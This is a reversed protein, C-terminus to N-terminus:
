CTVAELAGKTREQNHTSERIQEPTALGPIGEPHEDLFQRSQEVRQELDGILTCLAEHTESGQTAGTIFYAVGVGIAALNLAVVICFAAFAKKM